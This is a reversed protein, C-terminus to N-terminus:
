FNTPSGSRVWDALCGLATILQQIVLREVPNSKAQRLGVAVAAYFQGQQRSGCPCCRFYARGVRLYDVLLAAAEDRLIIAPSRKCIVQVAAKGAQGPPAQVVALAAAKFLIRSKPM